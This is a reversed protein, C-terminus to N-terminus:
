IYQIIIRGTFFTHVLVRQCVMGFNRIISDLNYYTLNPFLQRALKISCFHKTSFTKGLRKFESKLFGYDFRANHAVLISDSLIQSIEDGVEYFSPANEIDKDDIGTLNKIFPPIGTQSNILSDFKGVIKDNQVRVIGIEIIRDMQPNIGTTEIDLFSIDRVM